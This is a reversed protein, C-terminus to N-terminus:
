WRWGMKKAYEANAAKRADLEKQRCARYADYQPKCITRAAARDYGLDELCKMSAKSLPECDGPDFKVKDEDTRSVKPAGGRESSAATSSSSSSMTVDVRVCARAPAHFLTLARLAKASKECPPAPTTM